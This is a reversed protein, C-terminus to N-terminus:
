KYDKSCEDFVQKIINALKKVYLNTDDKLYAMGIIVHHHSNILPISAVNYQERVFEEVTYGIGEGFAISLFYDDTDDCVKVINPEYGDHQISNMMAISTKQNITDRLLIVPEEKIDNTLVYDHKALSSNKSAVICSHCDYIPVHIVDDVKDFDVDMGLAIDVKKELLFAIPDLPVCRKLKIRVHYNAEFSKIIKTLQTKEFDSVFGVTIQEIENSLCKANNLVIEFDKMYKNISDYFYVGAPTLKPRYHNRNFLQLSLESELKTIAQSVASQSIYLKKAAASFSGYKVVEMFLMIKSDFM